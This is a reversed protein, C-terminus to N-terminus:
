LFFGLFTGLVLWIGNKRHYTFTTREDIAKNRRSFFAYYLVAIEGSLMNAAKEHGIIEKMVARCHVMFDMGGPENQRLAKNAQYFKRVIIFIVVSEMVPAIWTHLANLLFHPRNRLLLGAIVMGAVFVRVVTIKPVTTNRIFLYYVLPATITLDLTIATSLRDTHLGFAASLAIIICAAFILLPLGIALTLNPKNTLTM